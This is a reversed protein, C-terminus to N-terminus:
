PMKRHLFKKADEDHREIHIAILHDIDARNAAVQKEITEIFASIKMYIKAVGIAVAITPLHSLVLKVIEIETM